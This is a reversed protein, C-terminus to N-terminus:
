FKCGVSPKPAAVRWPIFKERLKIEILRTIGHSHIVLVTNYIARQCVSTVTFALGSPKLM